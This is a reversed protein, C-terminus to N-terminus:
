FKWVYICLNPKNIEIYIDEQNQSVNEPNDEENM